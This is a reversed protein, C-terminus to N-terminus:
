CIGMVCLGVCAGPLCLAWASALTVAFLALVGLSTMMRGPTSLPIRPFTGTEMQTLRADFLETGSMAAVAGKGTHVRANHGSSVQFLAGAVAPTGCQQLAARDAVLERREIYRRLIDGVAPLYFFIDAYSRAIMVKFPDLAAAHAWEHVLVAQLEQVTCREVLGSSVVIYPRVYGFTFAYASECSVEVVRTDVGAAGAAEALRRSPERSTARIWARLRRTRAVQRMLSVAGLSTGVATMMLLGAVTMAKEGSLTSLGGASIRGITMMLGCVTLVMLLQRALLAAMFGAFTLYGRARLM